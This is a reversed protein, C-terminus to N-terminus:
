RTQYTQHSITGAIVFDVQKQVPGAESNGEFHMAGKPFVWYSSRKLPERQYNMKMIHVKKCCEELPLIFQGGYQSGTLMVDNVWSSFWDQLTLYVDDLFTIQLDFLTTTAPISYTSMYFEFDKTELTSVNETVEVAPFWKAFGDPKNPDPADDFKIDWLHTSGWEVTRIQEKGKFFVM